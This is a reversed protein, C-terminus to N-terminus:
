YKLEVNYDGGRIVWCDEDCVRYKKTEFKGGDVAFITKGASVYEAKVSLYYDLPMDIEYNNQYATDIYEINGEEFYGKYFVLPVFPNEDNITLKVKIIGWVPKELECDSFDYNECDEVIPKDCAMMAFLFLFLFMKKM